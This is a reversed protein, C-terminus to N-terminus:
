YKWVVGPQEQYPKKLCKIENGSVDLILGWYNASKSSIKTSSKLVEAIGDKSYVSFLWKTADEDGMELLREIVFKRDKTTDLKEFDVDWFFRKLKSEVM